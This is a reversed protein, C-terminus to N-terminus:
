GKMLFLSYAVRFNRQLISKKGRSGSSESPLRFLVDSSTLLADSAQGYTSTGYLTLIIAKVVWAQLAEFQSKWNEATLDPSVNLTFTDASMERGIVREEPFRPASSIIKGDFRALNTVLSVKFLLEDRQGFDKAVQAWYERPYKKLSRTVTWWISHPGQIYGDQEFVLGIKQQHEYWGM